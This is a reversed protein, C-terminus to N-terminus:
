NIGEEFLGAVEEEIANLSVMRLQVVVLVVLATQGPLLSLDGGPLCLTLSLVRCSCSGLM